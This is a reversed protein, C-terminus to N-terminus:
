KKINNRENYMAIFFKSLEDEIGVSYHTLDRARLTKMDDYFNVINVLFYDCGIQHSLWRIANIHTNYTMQLQDENILSRETLDGLNLHSGDIIVNGLDDMDMVSFSEPNNDIIFEYRCYTPAYHFINKIKLKKYLQSLIRYHTMVGSGGIGVNWFKGGVHQNVKYAWTNELHHGIGFTHSCGLFLNGRDESNFDDPTRFGYNNLKYEIPNELYYKLSNNGPYKKLNEDFLEKTDMPIWGYTNSPKTLNELYLRHIKDM